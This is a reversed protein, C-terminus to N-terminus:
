KWMKQKVLVKEAGFTPILPSKPDYKGILDNAEFAAVHYDHRKRNITEELKELGTPRNKMAVKSQLYKTIWEGVENQIIDIQNLDQETKPTFEKAKAIKEDVVLEAPLKGVAAKVTKEWNLLFDIRKQYLDILENRDTESAKMLEAIKPMAANKDSGQKKMYVGALVVLVVVAVIIGM